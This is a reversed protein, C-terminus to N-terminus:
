GHAPPPADQHMAMEVSLVSHLGGFLGAGAMHMFPVASPGHSALAELGANGGAASAHTGLASLLADVNPGQGGGGHLADALVKGVVQEHQALDGAVSTQGPAGHAAAALQEASPMTVAAATVATASGSAHAPASTGQLLETNVQAGKADGTTLAHAAEVMDHASTGTHQPEVPAHSVVASQAVHSTSAVTALETTVSAVKAGEVAHGTPLNGLDHAAVHNQMGSDLVSLGAAAVAGMLAAKQGDHFAREHLNDNSSILSSTSMPERSVLQTSQAMTSLTTAAASTAGINVTVSTTATDGDADHITTDFGITANQDQSSQTIFGINQIKFPQDSVDTSFAQTGSSGGAAGLAGNFNVATGTIGDDSGAVQAGVIVLNTNGNQYDNPEIVILGDNNDLM